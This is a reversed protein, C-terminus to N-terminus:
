SVEGKGTRGYQVLISVSCVITIFLAGGLAMLPLTLTPVSNRPGIFWWLLFSSLVFVWWFAKFAFSLARKLILSDREDCVVGSRSEPKKFLFPKFKLLVLIAVFWIGITSYGRMHFEIAVAISTIIITATIVILNFWALKQYRNM